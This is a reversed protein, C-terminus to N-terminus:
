GPEAWPGRHCGTIQHGAVADLERDGPHLGDDVAGAGGLVVVDLGERQGSRGEGGLDPVQDEDGHDAGVPYRDATPHVPRHEAVEGELPGGLLGAV